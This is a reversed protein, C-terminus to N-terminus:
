NSASTSALAAGPRTALPQGPWLGALAPAVRARDLRLLYAGDAGTYSQVLPPALVLTKLGDPPLQQAVKALALLDGPGLDTRVAALAEQALQPARLLAPWGLARDRMALLLQQQRQMRGFDSDVHRTRVYSLATAGDMTQVGQPIVLRRTGYDDTPYTDDVIARPVDIEVGGLLDVLREFGGFDVVAYHDIPLGLLDGVVREALAPGGGPQRVEGYTYATNIKTEGVGPVVVALDRPLSLLAVQREAPAVSLVMLVDTRGPLGARREDPRLDLGLLLINTRAPGVWDPLPAPGAGDAPSAAPTPTARATSARAPVEHAGGPPVHQAMGQALAGLGSGAAVSAAFLAALVGRALWRPRRPAGPAQPSTSM